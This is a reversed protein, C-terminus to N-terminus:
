LSNKLIKEIENIPVPPSFYYGQAIDCNQSRLFEVQEKTEVGEAIVLMGLSQAISIISKVIIENQKNKLLDNIFSRDIKLQDIPFKRLYNLSSYGTGFDDLALKIGIGRLKHLKTVAEEMNYMAVSETIELDLYQPNFDLQKLIDSINKIIQDQM